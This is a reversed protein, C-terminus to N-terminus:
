EVPIYEVRQTAMEKALARQAKYGEIHEICDEHTLSHDDGSPESLYYKNYIKTIREWRSFSVDCLKAEPTYIIKEYRIEKRIRYLDKEQKPFFRGIIKKVIGM